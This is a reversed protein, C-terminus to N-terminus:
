FLSLGQAFQGREDDKVVTYSGSSVPTGSQTERNWVISNNGVITQHSFIAIQRGAQNLIKFFSRYPYDAHFMFVYGTSNQRIQFGDIQFSGKTNNKIKINMGAATTDEFAGIDWVGGFPRPIGDHDVRIDLGYLEQFIKYVTDVVGADKACSGGTLHFNNKTVDFFMPDFSLNKTANGSANLATVNAYSVDRWLLKPSGGGQFFINNRCYGNSTTSQIELHRGATSTINAVINNSIYFNGGIYSDSIGNDVNYLTNNVIYRSYGGRMHIGNGNETISEPRIDYILNGVAFISLDTLGDDTGVIEIGGGADHLTNYIMWFNKPSYQAGICTTNPYTPPAAHVNYVHNQSFIVDEAYKVLLGYHNVDYVTNRGYYIKKAIRGDPHIGGVRSGCESLTHMVNDVVWVNSSYADVFMAGADTDTTPHMDGIDHIVNDYIVIDSAWEEVWSGISLGFKLSTVGEGSIDCHRLAIHNATVAEQAGRYGILAPANDKFDLFELIMYSGTVYIEREKFAPKIDTSQGVVWVPGSINAVWSQNNGNGVIRVCGPTNNTSYDGHIEVYSGAPIPIPINKRPKSSTGYPNNDDTGTQQNIYYYGPVATTWNGPRSPRVENIGFEPKPIGIPPVWSAIGTSFVLSYLVLVHTIVKIPFSLRQM